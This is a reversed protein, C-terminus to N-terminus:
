GVWKVIKKGHNSKLWFPYAMADSSYVKANYLINRYYGEPTYYNIVRGYLSGTIGGHIQSVGEIWVLGRVRTSDNQYYHPSLKEEKNEEQRCFIVYGNVQSTPAIEIYSDPGAEPIFIGSPYNLVVEEGLLVTDSAVVQLNGRFGDHIIVKPAVLIADEIYTDNYLEIKQDSYFVINGRISSGSITNSQLYLTNEAFSNKLSVRNLSSIQPNIGKLNQMSQGHGIHEPLDGTSQKIFTNEVYEGSYFDSGVQSYLLGNEPLYALGKLNSNGTLTFAQGNDSVYLAPTINTDAKYGMLCIKKLKKDHTEATVLEYLGWNSRHITVASQPKDNFLIISKNKDLREIFTSDLQYLLLASEVWANRQLDAYNGASLRWKMDYLDICILVGMFMVTGIVLVTPLISGKIYMRFRM